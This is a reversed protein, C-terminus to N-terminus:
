KTIRKIERDIYWRAKELDQVETDASKLGARAIYKVANGRNFNLCETLEIVEVPYATYHAPSSVPDGGISNIGEFSKITADLDDQIQAAALPNASVLLIPIHVLERSSFANPRGNRDDWQVLVNGTRTVEVVTGAPDSSDVRRVRDGKKFESM